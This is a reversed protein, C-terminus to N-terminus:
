IVEEIGYGKSISRKPRARNHIYKKLVGIFREFSFMNHVFIPKHIVIEEVLQVLLHTMINFFSPPFVLEFSVLCQSVDKQLRPLIDPNIVKQSIANLFVCLKVISVRVNEPLLERIAQSNTVGLNLHSSCLLLDERLQPVL